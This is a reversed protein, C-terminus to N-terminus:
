NAGRENLKDTGTVSTPTQLTTMPSGPCKMHHDAETKALGDADQGPKTM